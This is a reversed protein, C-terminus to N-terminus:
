FFNTLPFTSSVTHVCASICIETMVKRYTSVFAMTQVHTPHRVRMLKKVILDRTARVVSVNM